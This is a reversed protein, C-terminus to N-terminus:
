YETSSTARSPLSLSLSLVHRRPTGPLSDPPSLPGPFPFLLFSNSLPRQAVETPGVCLTSDRRVPRTAARGVVNEEDARRASCSDAIFNSLMNRVASYFEIKSKEGQEGFMRADNACTDTRLPRDCVAGLHADHQWVMTHLYEAIFNTLM